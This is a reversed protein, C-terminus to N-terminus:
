LLTQLPKSIFIFLFLSLAIRTSHWEWTVEMGIHVGPRCAIFKRGGKTSRPSQCVWSCWTVEINWLKVFDSVQWLPLCFNCCWGLRVYSCSFSLYEWGGPSFFLLCALPRQWEHLQGLNALVETWYRRKEEVGDRWREGDVVLPPFVIRLLVWVLALWTQSTYPAGSDPFVCGEPASLLEPM